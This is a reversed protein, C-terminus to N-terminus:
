LGAWEISFARVGDGANSGAGSANERRTDAGGILYSKKVGTGLRGGGVIDLLDIEEDWDAGTALFHSHFRLPDGPYVTYHCGFRLGPTIFYGKSHLFAFLPYTKSVEPLSLTPTTNPTQLPPYSITPTIFHREVALPPHSPAPSPSRPEAEFVSCEDDGDALRQKASSDATESVRSATNERARRAMGRGQLAKQSREEAKKKSEAAIEMGQKDMAQLFALQDKRSMDLLGTKHAEVEDIIYAHGHEVLLRAEEPMLELPIGLFVNQQSLHPITGILVGCINHERRAYTVAHVDFLLYRTAIRSIPFPTLTQPLTGASTLLTSNGM